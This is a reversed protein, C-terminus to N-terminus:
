GALLAERRAWGERLMRLLLEPPQAGTVGVKRDVIFTPVGSIGLATAAREDARVEDAFRDGDLMEAIEDAPIDLDAGAELLTERDSILRGDTFYARLLREKM